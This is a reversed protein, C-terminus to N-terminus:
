CIVIGTSNVIACSGPIMSLVRACWQVFWRRRLQVLSLKGSRSNDPYQRRTHAVPASPDAFAGALTCHHMTHWIFRLIISPQNRNRMSEHTLLVIRVVVM